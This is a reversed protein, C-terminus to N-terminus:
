PKDEAPLPSQKLFLALGVLAGVLVVQGVKALGAGLNFDTPSVIMVTIGNAGGSVTAAIASHAWKKTNSEM